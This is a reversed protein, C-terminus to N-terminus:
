NLKVIMSLKYNLEVEPDNVTQPKLFNELWVDCEEDWLIFDGSSSPGDSSSPDDSHEKDQSNGM